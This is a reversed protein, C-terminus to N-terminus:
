HTPIEGDWIHRGKVRVQRETELSHEGTRLFGRGGAMTGQEEQIAGLSLSSLTITPYSLLLVRQTEEKDLKIQSGTGLARQNNTPLDINPSCAVKGTRVQKGYKGM